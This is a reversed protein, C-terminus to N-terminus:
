LFKQVIRPFLFYLFVGDVFFDIKISTWNRHNTESWTRCTLIFFWDQIMICILDLHRVARSISQVIRSGALNKLCGWGWTVPSKISISLINDNGIRSYLTQYCSRIYFIDHDNVWSALNERKSLKISEDWWRQIQYRCIQSIDNEIIRFYFGRLGAAVSGWFFSRFSGFKDTVSSRTL